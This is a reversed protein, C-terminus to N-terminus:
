RFYPHSVVEVMEFYRNLSQIAIMDDDICTMYWSYRSIFVDLSSVGFSSLQQLINGWMNLLITKFFKLTFLWCSLTGYRHWNSWRVQWKYPGGLRDLDPHALWWIQLIVSALHLRIRKAIPIGFFNQDNKYCDVPHNQLWHM